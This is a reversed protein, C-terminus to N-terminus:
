QKKKGEKKRGRIKEKRTEHIGDQAKKNKKEMM